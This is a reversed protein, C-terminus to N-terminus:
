FLNYNNNVLSQPNSIIKAWRNIKSWIFGTIDKSTIDVYNENFFYFPSEGITEITNHGSSGNKGGRVSQIITGPPYDKIAKVLLEENTM